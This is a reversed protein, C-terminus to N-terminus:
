MNTCHTNVQHLKKLEMFSSNKIKETDKLKNSLKQIHYVHILIVNHIYYYTNSLKILGMKSAEYDETMTNM